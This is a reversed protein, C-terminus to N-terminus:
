KNKLFASEVINTAEQYQTILSKAANLQGLARVRNHESHSPFKEANWGFYNENLADACFRSALELFITQTAPVINRWEQEEIHDRTEVAYGEIMAEFLEPSFVGDTTDEGQPNCWSRIADGLDLYIPMKALTDLDIFCLAEDSDPEFIVNTIKPDGHVIREKTVTLEPLSDTLTLIEKALKSIEEYRSHNTKDCLTNSLIDLHYSLNHGGPRSSALESELDLLAVHVKGLLIGANKAIKPKNVTSHVDGDIYSLLRWVQQEREVWLRQDKTKILEPTTLGKNKLHQTVLDVNQNVAAPFMPNVLQLIYKKKSSTHVLYTTNLLGTTIKCIDTYSLNYNALIEKAERLETDNLVAM